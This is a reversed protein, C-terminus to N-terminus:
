VEEVMKGAPLGKGPGAGFVVGAHTGLLEEPVAVVSGMKNNVWRIMMPDPRKPQKAAEEAEEAAAAAQAARRTTRPAQKKLLKNVTEMKIEENRKESLNRRRRAMEARRMSLEEATFHKKSQVEDSLKLYEGSAEGLRARQRATLRSMDPTQARSIMEDDDDEEEEDEDEDQEVDEGEADEDAVEIEEEEEEEEGEADVEGEADDDEGEADEGGAVNVEEEPESELSSLSEDDSDPAPRKVPVANDNAKSATAAKGNSPSEKPPKTVKIAPPVARVTTARAGVVGADMNVDGDADEEGEADVDMEDDEGDADEEGLDQMEEDEDEVDEEDEDYGEGERVEIEDEEEEEEEDEDGLVEVENEEEEEESSELVRSRKGGRARKVAAKGGGSSSSSSGVSGAKKIGSSSTAQRLKSSPLKVTLHIHEPDSAGGAESRSVSAIGKGPLRSRSSSNFSSMRSSIPGHSHDSERDRDALDTIAQSARQAAHRRPRTSM